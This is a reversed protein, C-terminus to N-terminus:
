KSFVCSVSCNKVEIARAPALSVGNDGPSAPGCGAAASGDVRQVDAPVPLTFSGPGVPSISVSRLLFDQGQNGLSQRIFLGPSGQVQALTRDLVVHSLDDAPQLQFIASLHDLVGPSGPKHLHECLRLIAFTVPFISFNWANKASRCSIMDPKRFPVPYFYCDGPPLSYKKQVKVTAYLVHDPM